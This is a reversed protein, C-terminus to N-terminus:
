DRRGHGTLEGWDAIAGGGPGHQLLYAAHIRECATRLTTAWGIHDGRLYAKYRADAGGNVRRM